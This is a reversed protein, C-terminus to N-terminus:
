TDGCRPRCRLETAFTQGFKLCWQRVTESTVVIGREALLEEVDRSSLSFRIYSAQGLRQNKREESYLPTNRWSSGSDNLHCGRDEKLERSRM